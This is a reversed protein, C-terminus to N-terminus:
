KRSMNFTIVPKSPNSAAIMGKEGGEGRKRSIEIVQASLKGVLAVKRRIGLARSTLLSTPRRLTQGSNSAFPASQGGVSGTGLIVQGRIAVESLQFTDNQM